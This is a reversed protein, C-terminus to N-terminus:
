FGYIKMHQYIIKYDGLYYYWGVEDDEAMKTIPEKEFSVYDNNIYGMADYDVIMFGGFLAKDDQKIVAMSLVRGQKKHFSILNNLDINCMYDGFTLFFPECPDLLNAIKLLMGGSKVKKDLKAKIISYDKYDIEEITENSSSHCLIFEKIGHKRYAEIIQNITDYSYKDALIVAKM